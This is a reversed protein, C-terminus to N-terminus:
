SPPSRASRRGPAARASAGTPAASGTSREAARRRRLPHGPRARRDPRLAPRGARGAQVAGYELVLYERTAGQVDRQRMEVFRGVGHQEHVVFDGTKLELPDIQRKGAPPCGARTAPPAASAPSTTAPSWCSGSRRRRRVRPGPDRLHRHRRRARARRRRRARGPPRRHRARRAGRGHAGGARSRSADRGGAAGTTALWGRLDAVARDVDGRYGDVPTASSRATPRAPRARRRPRVPQGDVVVPRARPRPGPRRRADRYSAAGLDIPATGGGAAAAWSAGLFEESTAVLDHARSRVREPDVVLVQTDDPMVDVLLEMEDVLVPALSEMGEVAIGAALKSTM